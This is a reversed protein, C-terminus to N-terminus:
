FNSNGSPGKKKMSKRVWAVKGEHRNGKNPNAWGMSTESSPDLEATTETRSRQQWKGEHLLPGLEVYTWHYFNNKIQAGLPTIWKERCMAVM